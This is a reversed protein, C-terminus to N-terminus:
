GFIFFLGGLGGGFVGHGGLFVVVGLILLRFVTVWGSARM